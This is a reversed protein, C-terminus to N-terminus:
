AQFWADGAAADQQFNGTPQPMPSSTMGYSVGYVAMILGILLMVGGIWKFPTRDLGLLTPRDRLSSAGNGHEPLDSTPLDLGDEEPAADRHDAVPVTTAESPRM